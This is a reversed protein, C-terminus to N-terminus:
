PTKIKRGVWAIGPMGVAMHMLYILFAYAVAQDQPTHIWAAGYYFTLERLGVGGISIPISVVISAIVALILLNLATESHFHTHSLAYLLATFAALLVLQSPLSHRFLSQLSFGIPEKILWRCTAAYLLCGAVFAACWLPWFYPIFRHWDSFFLLILLLLGLAFLGSLRESLLTRLAEWRTLKQEQTFKWARYGDGSIGGPLLLSLAMGAFYSRAADPWTIRRAFLHQMVWQTRWVCILKSFLLLLLALGLWVPHLGALASALKELGIHAVVWVM